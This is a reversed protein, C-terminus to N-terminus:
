FDADTHTGSVRAGATVICNTLQAGPAVVANEWVVCDQLVVGSGVQAGAAVATAGLLRVEPAVSADPAMFDGRGLRHLERHVHLYQGRTGLDYWCGRDLVLGGLRAGTKIMEVFIPVVSLKQGPPIRRIFEPQVIYVGTFLHGPTVDPHLRSGLDRIRGTTEDLTIQRPGTDSRLVLTVENGERFHHEIAPALPLDTFVDGNYVIFPEDGLLDAVNAIGGATELLVPEHRFHLAADRYKGQPFAPLYQEACHHTNVVLKEVGAALLHDFAYTILPRNAVPVLPKPLRATLAKLRTGLGAGLVFAQRISDTM